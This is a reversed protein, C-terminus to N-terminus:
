NSSKYNAVNEPTVLEFPIAVRQETKEGRAIKLVTDLSGEGQGKASQYVTVDLDGAELAALADQTADV